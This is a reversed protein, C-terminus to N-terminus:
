LYRTKKWMLAHPNSLVDCWRRSGFASLDDYSSIKTQSFFSSFFTSRLCLSALASSVYTEGRQEGLCRSQNCSNSGVM